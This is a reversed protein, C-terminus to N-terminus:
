TSNKFDKLFLKVAEDITSIYNDAQPYETNYCRGYKAKKTKASIYCGASKLEIKVQNRHIM